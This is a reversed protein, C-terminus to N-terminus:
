TEENTKADGGNEGWNEGKEVESSRGESGPSSGLGEETSGLRAVENDRM